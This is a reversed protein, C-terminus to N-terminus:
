EVTRGRDPISSGHEAPYAHILATTLKPVTHTLEHEADHAIRHAQALDLAPDVDLEADAHLRHGIWRMRVSRVAQVGPRAALAQEAADVMAPDVGDLLRRFVDRAATRLVALIAATILLGVIPDALPFGLAVGGASCLVALSTFGDTRAHLGDAILAASGIRHGVRIRYLAVWENGIFGVLGALAVWGVHEIQQPHILRAIAEYGAIIASMTIMAVVFSGALDEVLGFGYTYRRTAPKAGLAFAIWLPVATLADAFNHITDAALAVSGSMVVIVIQILATLGLVLLSIKVTRIGAATSELTDDVSDAADHSHPAFIEKIM